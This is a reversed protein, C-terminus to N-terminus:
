EETPLYVLRSEAEVCSESDSLYKRGTFDLRDALHRVQRLALIL